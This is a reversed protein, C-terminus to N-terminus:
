GGDTTTTTSVPGIPPDDIAVCSTGPPLTTPTTPGCEPFDLITLPDTTEFDIADLDARTIKLRVVVEQDDDEDPYTARVIVNQQGPLNAGQVSQLVVFADQRTAVALEDGSLSADLKWTV